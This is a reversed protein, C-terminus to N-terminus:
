GEASLWAGVSSEGRAVDQVARTIEPRCLAWLQLLYKDGERKNRASRWLGFARATEARRDASLITMLNRPAPEFSYGFPGGRREM